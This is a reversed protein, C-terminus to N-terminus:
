NRVGNVKDALINQKSKMNKVSKQTVSVDQKQGNSTSHAREITMVTKCHNLKIHNNYIITFHICCKKPLKSTSKSKKAPVGCAQTVEFM